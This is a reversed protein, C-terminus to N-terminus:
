SELGSATALKTPMLQNSTEFLEFMDNFFIWGGFIIILLLSAWQSLGLHYTFM